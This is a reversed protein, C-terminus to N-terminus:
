RLKMKPFSIKPARVNPRNPTPGKSPRPGTKVNINGPSPYSPTPKKSDIAPINGVGNGKKAPKNVSKQDQQKEGTEPQGVKSFSEMTYNMMDGRAEDKKSNLETHEAAPTKNIVESTINGNGDDKSIVDQNKIELKQNPIPKKSESEMKNRSIDKNKGPNERENVSRDGKDIETSMSSNNETVKSNSNSIGSEGSNLQKGSPVNSNSSVSEGNSIGNIKSLVSSEFTFSQKLQESM